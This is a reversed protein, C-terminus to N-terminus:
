AAVAHQQQHPLLVARVSNGPQLQLRKATLRDVVLSNGVLRGHAATIRCNELRRNHILWLPAQEDPTGLSLTLELSDRVTRISRIPAEIVPGGDFIDIYGKHAFGEAQLIKLAPQTNPHTQGIAAQAQETLLCTYLPQRPMLEAIFAKNGLGSLHDAHTFDMQFFHRGLSDWFPSCGNEDASGRLEAIMKEGFLHPFEAVFLLRGLSLLRGNSGNRQDHRLFLSCLESQGTLENNLFLTPIQRQIGLDPASSVTVGLRYNYWPERLGVAGAMASVGVVRQEDDELVFLYDADAREVQEAFARQAWRVRHALRDENAPLTTFGPGAQEVLTMLAPLDSVKVPRVIM